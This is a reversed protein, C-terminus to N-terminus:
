WRYNVVGNSQQYVRARRTAQEQQDDDDDNRYRTARAVPHPAAHRVLKSPKDKEDAVRETKAVRQPFKINGALHTCAVFWSAPIDHQAYYLRNYDRWIRAMVTGGTTHSGAIPRNDTSGGWVATVLDPTFGVFWLDKAQDSTGTKGAVPRDGLRAQAGTGQAVVEQLVDVLMAMKDNQFVKSREPYSAWLTIGNRDEIRRLVTPKLYVGGRAFTSYASAMDLPSVASCGLALSIQQDLQSRIGALHATETVASVGVMQTARVACTNRSYALAEAVTIDGMYKGDFNKPEYDKEGRIPIKIPEDQIMSTPKLIGRNFASLYVFPKFASGATHPGTACNWQNKMYDGIGGVMAVIGGDRVNISVLAGQNCGPPARLIGARLTREAADQAQPDLNTFLKLGHREQEGETYMDRVIDLVYSIYYPYKSIPCVIKKPPRVKFHLHENQAFWWQDKSIYGYELMNDLVVLQRSNNEKRYRSDGGRAPHRILGAIYASEAISLENASKDFYRNAAQEIGYAGNGFYVENLYLELIKEKSFNQELQGAVIAEAIKVPIGRKEDEFFLNKALQQTVTSGGQVAHGAVINALTARLIGTYDLGHHEYFHHDEAALVARQLHPTVQTLPIIIRKESGEIRCIPKDNRDFIQMDSVPQYHELFSLNPVRRMELGVAVILYLGFCGLAFSFVQWAVYAVKRFGELNSIVSGAQKLSDLREHRDSQKQRFHLTFAKWITLSDAARSSQVM